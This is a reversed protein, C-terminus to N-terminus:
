TRWMRPIFFFSYRRLTDWSDSRIGNAHAFLRNACPKNDDCYDRTQKIDFAISRSEASIVGSTNWAILRKWQTFPEQPPLLFLFELPFSHTQRHAEDVRPSYMARKLSAGAWDPLFEACHTYTPTHASVFAFLFDTHNDPTLIIPSPPTVHPLRHRHSLFFPLYSM